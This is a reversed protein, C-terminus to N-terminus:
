ISLRYAEAGVITDTHAVRVLMLTNGYVAEILFKHAGTSGVRDITVFEDGASFYDLFSTGTGTVLRSVSDIDVTGAIKKEKEVEFYIAIGYPTAFTYYKYTQITPPPTTSTHVDGITVEAFVTDGGGLFDPVKFVELNENSSSLVILSFKLVDRISLVNDSKLRLDLNNRIAIEGFVELGSPHILKKLLNKYRSIEIGSKIVYSYQQYYFSDQIKKYDIKGSDGVFQGTTEGSGTIIPVINADGNGVGVSSVNANSYDVGFNVSEIRKIGGIGGSNNAVDVIVNAGSGMIGTIQLNAGSGSATDPYDITILNLNALTYGQGRNRMKIRSIPGNGFWENSITNTTNYKVFDDEEFMLRNTTGDGDELYIFYDGGLRVGANASSQIYTTAVNGPELQAHSVYLSGTGFPKYENGVYSTSISDHLFIRTYLTTNAADCKGSISVRRWDNALLQVSSNTVASNSGLSATTVTNSSFVFTAGIIDGTNATPSNSIHIVANRNSTLGPINKLYVSFTHYGPTEVTNQEEIYHRVIPESTAYEPSGETYVLSERIYEADNQGFPDVTNTTNIVSNAGFAYVNVTSWNQFEDSYLIFNKSPPDPPEEVSGVEANAQVTYNGFNLRITEGPKYNLGKDVITINKESIMGLNYITSDRLTITPVDFYDQGKNIVKVKEVDGVTYTNGSVTINYSNSIDTVMVTLGSGGTGTNDATTVAGVRYGHGTQVLKIADIGSRYTNTVRLTAQQGDGSVTLIDGPVYGSGGYVINYTAIIGYITTELPFPSPDGLDYITEEEVFIGSVLALKMEAVYETGVFTKKIDIVNAISGSTRGKITKFLLDFIRNSSDDGIIRARIITEKVYNGDSVKLVEEGPYSIEIDQNYLLKMFFRYSQEHGKSQYYDRIKKALLRKDGSYSSPIASYLEDKLYDSFIDVSKDVDRNDLIQNSKRLVNDKVELLRGIAGSTQGVINEGREFPFNGTVFVVLVTSSKVYSITAVNKSTQGIIAEGKLFTGSTIQYTVETTHLWEYYAKLFEVFTESSNFVGGPIAQRLSLGPNYSYIKAM